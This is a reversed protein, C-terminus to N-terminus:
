IVPIKKVKWKYEHNSKPLKLMYGDTINQLEAKEFQYDKEVEKIKYEIYRMANENSKSVVKLQNEYATSYEPFLDFDEFSELVAYVNTM